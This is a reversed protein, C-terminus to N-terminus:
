PHLQRMSPQRHMSTWIERRNHSKPSAVEKMVVSKDAWVLALVMDWLVM